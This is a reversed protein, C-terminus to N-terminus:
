SPKSAGAFATASSVQGSPRGATGRRCWGPCWCCPGSRAGLGAVALHSRRGSSIRCSACACSRRARGAAGQDHMPPSPESVMAWCSNSVAHGITPTGLVMSLSRSPSRSIVKPKSVATAQAVSASSRRCVCRRSGCGRSPARPSPGSRRSSRAAVGAQGAAGVDDQDGLDREIVFRDHALIRSRSASPLCKVCRRRRRPRAHRRRTANTSTPRLRCCDRPAGPPCRRLM